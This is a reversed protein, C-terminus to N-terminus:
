ARLPIYNYYGASMDLHEDREYISVDVMNDTAAQTDGHQPAHGYALNVTETKTRIPSVVKHSLYLGLCSLM